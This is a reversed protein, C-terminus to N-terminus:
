SKRVWVGTGLVGRLEERWKEIKELSRERSKEFEEYNRTMMM